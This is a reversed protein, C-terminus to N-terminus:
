RLLEALQVKNPIRHLNIVKVGGLERSGVEIKTDMTLMAVKRGQQTLLLHHARTAVDYEPFNSQIFKRLKLLNKPISTNNLTAHKDKANQAHTHQPSRKLAMLALGGTVLVIIILWWIGDLTGLTM